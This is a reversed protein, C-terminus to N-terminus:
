FSFGVGFSFRGREHPAQFYTARATLFNIANLWLGGGYDHHWTNSAVGDLWVKGYDFGGLLGYSLPIISKRIKGINWRLDTSQAYYSNGLFRENRYGRLDFDGGLTAGQYFEYNDNFITKAKFNTAFVLKGNADLKHAFGLNGELAPFNRKNDDLNSIWSGAISFNIGMTPMTLIDANIFSYKVKVGGFLQNLFVAPNVIGPLNVYRNETHEVEYQEFKPQISIESGFRGIKKFAPAIKIKQIRVRNYNMGFQDDNNQTDNGYGFFNITFNPTTFQAEVDIGWKGLVEPFYGNYNLEVGETAFYYHGKLVHKQTFPNQKYQNVTYSSTFGLKFGDDPNYGMTPVGSVVNYKPKEYNYWNLTYDDSLKTTTKSDVDFTNKKSKFDYIKVKKGNSVLYSDNNQGGILRIKINSKEKGMVEYVDDDDLGYVWLNKTAPNRYEKAYLFEEGEKKLRYVRVELTNKSKHHIVFKDKKNTGVVLVTHQLVAYYEAAYKELDDRRQKLNQKITQLTKDQVEKPINAFATEIDQDSLHTKIYAAQKIWDEKTATKLFALDLPYPERNLWKINDIEKDFSRMHRIAPINMIILFAAGDFKPFAQDRDRPIPTYVVKDEKKYEAWRWQDDHRDWDGILMDFLRAKIYETQDVSYKEDKQLNKMMDITSIIDSPPTKGFTKVEKQNDAVREEVLYLEDGFNSNYQGLKNQKPIYYLFPNTHAVGIKEAMDGIAFPAYPYATTYFDFLFGETYTDAFDDVIYQDKFAVSQLFQTASKKMARMVFERGQQDEIRLSKSQHGGGERTPTVGGFLTDLTATKAEVPVSYYTRYHKGFLFKHLFSKKTMKTSYISATTNPPFNSNYKTTTITDQPQIITKEFLLKESNNENGYFSVKVVGNEYINLAAYGNRGYSFDHKGVAKAAESKSGAGSIIQTINEKQIFQLNHDHGSVVIINKQGEILTKIRKSFITYQKNQLDQPSAGSTARLFNILSGIVPLPFKNEFPFLQKEASFQGGHTGNTMLPHHIALVVTKDQNKNLLSEFEAFFDERTKIECDDNITPHKDWDELFWESDITILTLNDNLKQDDIACGKLPSFSKKDDLYNTVFDSQLELGKLGSYWDHNGPIFVTNGKFGKTLLLQNTLKVQSLSDKKHTFGLPYINDGLFLLTSNKSAKELRELLLSLTKQSQPEDANGADGVLYFTHAIKASDVNNINTTEKAKKGFQEQHTACSTLLLSFLLLYLNAKIKTEFHIDSFLKM